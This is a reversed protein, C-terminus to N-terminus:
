EIFHSFLKENPGNWVPVSRPVARCQSAYQRSRPGLSTRHPTHPLQKLLLALLGRPKGTEFPCTGFPCPCSEFPCMVLCSEYFHFDTWSGDIRLKQNVQSVRCPTTIFCVRPRAWRKRTWCCSRGTPSWASNATGCTRGRTTRTATRWATPCGSDPTVGRM